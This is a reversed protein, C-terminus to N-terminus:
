HGNTDDPDMGQSPITGYSGNDTIQILCACHCSPLLVVSGCERHGNTDDLDMGQSPTTGYSGDDTIQILCTCHTDFCYFLIGCCYCSALLVLPWNTDNPDLGQTPLDM